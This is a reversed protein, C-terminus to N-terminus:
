TGLRRGLALGLAFAARERAETYAEDIQSLEFYERQKEAPVFGKMRDHADVVANLSLDRGDPAYHEIL